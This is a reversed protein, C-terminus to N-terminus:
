TRLLTSLEDVMPAWDSDQSLAQVIFAAQNDTWFGAEELPEQDIQGRHTQIFGAIDEDSSPLGLQAFLTNMSHETTDM